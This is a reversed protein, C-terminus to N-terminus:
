GSVVGGNLAVSHFNSIRLEFDSVFSASFDLFQFGFRLQKSNQAKQDNPNTEFKPNRTELNKKAGEVSTVRCEKHKM